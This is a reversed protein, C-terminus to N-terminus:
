PRFPTLLSNFHQSKVLHFYLLTTKWGRATGTREVTLVVPVSCPSRSADSLNRRTNPPKVLQFIKYAVGVEVWYVMSTDKVDLGQCWRDELGTWKLHMCHGMGLGLPALASALTTLWSPDLGQSVVLARCAQPRCSSGSSPVTPGHLHTHFSM